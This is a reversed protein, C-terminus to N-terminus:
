GSVPVAKKRSHGPTVDVDAVELNLRAMASQEAASERAETALREEIEAEEAPTLSLFDPITTFRYAAAELVEKKAQNM